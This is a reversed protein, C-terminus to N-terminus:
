SGDTKLYLASRQGLVGQLYGTAIGLARLGKVQITSRLALGAALRATGSIAQMTATAMPRLVPVRGQKRYRIYYKAVTQSRARHFVYRRRLRSKPMVEYVKAATVWGLTLGAAKARRSLDTDEGGMHGLNEDFRLAARQLAEVKGIWNGTAVDHAFQIGLQRTNERNKDRREAQAVYHDLIITEKRSLPADPALPVVPGAALDLEEREATAVLCVLWDSAVTEDDDVFVLWRSGSQIAADLARNRAVPIGLDPEHILDVSARDNLADAFAEVIPAVTLTANNEVVVFRVSLEPPLALQLFSDLCTTLLGPRNRTAVAVTIVCPSHM